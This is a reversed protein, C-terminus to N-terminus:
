GQWDLVNRGKIDTIRQGYQMSRPLVKCGKTGANHAIQRYGPTGYSCQVRKQVGQREEGDTQMDLHWQFEAKLASLACV